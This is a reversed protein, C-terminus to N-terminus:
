VILADDIKIGTCNVCADEIEMEIQFGLIENERKQYNKQRNKKTEADGDEIRTSDEHDGNEGLQVTKKKTDLILFV